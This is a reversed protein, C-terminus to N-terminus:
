LTGIVNASAPTPRTGEIWADKVHGRCKVSNIYASPNKIKDYIYVTGNTYSVVVNSGGPKVSLTNRRYQDTVRLNSM